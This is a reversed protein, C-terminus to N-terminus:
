YPKPLLKGTRQLIELSKGKHYWDSLLESSWHYEGMKHRGTELSISFWDSADGLRKEAIAHLGIYYAIECRKNDSTALTLLESESKKGLLMRGIQDYYSDHEPKAYYNNLAEIQAESLEHFSASAMRLLWIFDGYNDYSEPTEVVEWLLGLQHHDYFYMGAMNLYSDSIQQHIWRQAEKEGRDAKLFRYAVADLYLQGNGSRHLQSVMEFSLAPSIHGTLRYLMMLVDYHDPDTALMAHFAAIIKTKEQEHFIDYFSKGLKDNWDHGHLPHGFNKILDAAEGYKGYRWLIKAHVALTRTLDPYRNSALSIIGEAQEQEGLLSLIEATEEMAGAQYSRVVKLLEILADKYRQQMAYSKALLRQAFIYDFGNEPGHSALWQSVYHRMEEPRKKQVLYDAYQQRVSWDDPAQKILQQYAKDIRADSVGDMIQLYSVLRLAQDPLLGQKRLTSEILMPRNIIRAVLGTTAPSLLRSSKVRQKLLEQALPINHMQRYAIVGLDMIDDNRTDMRHAILRYIPYREPAKSSSQRLFERFLRYAAAAGLAPTNEIATYVQEPSSDGNKAIVLARYWSRVQDVIQNDERPNGLIHLYLNSDKTSSLNDLFHQAMTYIGSYFYSRYITKRMKADAFWQPKTEIDALADEFQDTLAGSGALLWKRILPGWEPNSQIEITHDSLASAMNEYGSIKEYSVAQMMTFYSMGLAYDPNSFFDGLQVASHLVPLVQSYQSFRSRQFKKWAQNQESDSLQLLWLYRTRDSAQAKEALRQLTDINQRVYARIADDKSLKSCLRSAYSDYGMLYALLARERVMMSGQQFEAVALAAMSKAMLGDGMGMRDSQQLAINILLRASLGFDAHMRQGAPWQTDLDELQQLADFLFFSEQQPKDHPTSIAAKFRPEQDIYLQLLEMMEPFDPFKNLTGINRKNHTINWRKDDFHAQSDSPDLDLLRDLEDITLIVRSDPKLRYADHYASQMQEPPVDLVSPPMAEHQWVTAAFAPSAASLLLLLYFPRGLWRHIFHSLIATGHSSYDM